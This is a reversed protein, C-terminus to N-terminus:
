RQALGLRKSVPETGALELLMYARMRRAVAGSLRSVASWPPIAAATTLRFPLGIRAPAAVSCRLSSLPGTTPQSPFSPPTRSNRFTTMPTPVVVPLSPSVEISDVFIFVATERKESEQEEGV